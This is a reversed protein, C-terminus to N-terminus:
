YQQQYKVVLRMDPLIRTRSNHALISDALLIAPNKLIYYRLFSIFSSTYKQSASLCRLRRCTSVIQKPKCLCAHGSYAFYSKTYRQLIELFAYPQLQNKAQLHGRFNAVLQYYWKPNTYGPMSLTGLVILECYRQLIELFIHLIIKIKQRCILTLPKKM